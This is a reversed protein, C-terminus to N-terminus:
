TVELWKHILKLIKELVLLVLFGCGARGERPINDAFNDCEGVERRAARESEQVTIAVKLRVLITPLLKTNIIFLLFNRNVLCQM